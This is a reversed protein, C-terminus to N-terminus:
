PAQAQPSQSRFFLRSITLKLRLLSSLSLSTTSMGANWLRAGDLHMKIGRERAWKSIRQAEALPMITGGLTNELCILKTPAFHIDDSLMAHEEVDELTLYVGNSPMVGIIHVQSLAAAAGAEYNRIHARSDCLLSHPPQLLHTRLALQNGLTGSQVFLGGGNTADYGVLKTVYAEFATTTPDELYVDDGVIASSMAAIM